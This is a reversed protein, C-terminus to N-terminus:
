SRQEQRGAVYTEGRSHGPIGRRVMWLTAVAAGIVHWILDWSTNVIDGVNSDAVFAAFVNEAIENVLGVVQSLV